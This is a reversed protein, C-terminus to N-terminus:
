RQAFRRIRESRLAAVPRLSEIRSLWDVEPEYSAVWTAFLLLVFGLGIHRWFAFTKFVSIYLLCAMCACFLFLARPRRLHTLTFGVLITANFAFAAGDVLGGYPSEVAFQPPILAM